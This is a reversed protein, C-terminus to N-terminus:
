QNQELIKKVFALHEKHGTKYAFIKANLRKNLFSLDGLLDLIKHRVPENIYNLKNVFKNNEIVLTNEFSSGRALGRNLLYELDEKYGFTRSHSIENIYNDISHQYKYFMFYPLKNEYNIFYNIELNNSPVLILFKDQNSYIITKNINIIEEAENQVTVLEKLSLVFINSCGDLIPIEDGKVEIEINTIGLAYIASLLHEITNISINNKSIKTCLESYVVNKLSLEIKIKDKVFFIGTNINSPKLCIYSKLGSHVGVGEFFLNKKITKQYM